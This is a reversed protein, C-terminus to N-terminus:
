NSRIKEYVYLKEGVRPVIGPSKPQDGAIVRITGLPIKTSKM